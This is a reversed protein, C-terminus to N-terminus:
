VFPKQNLFQGILVFPILITEGKINRKTNDSEEWMNKIARIFFSLDIKFNNSSNNVVKSIFRDAEEPSLSSIM